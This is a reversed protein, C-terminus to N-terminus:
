VVWVALIMACSALLGDALYSVPRAKRVIKRSGMLTSFFHRLIAAGVLWGSVRQSFKSKM